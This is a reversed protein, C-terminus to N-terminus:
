IKVRKIDNLLEGFADINKVAYVYWGNVEEYDGLGDGDTDKSVPDLGMNKAQMDSLGDGDSDAVCPNSYVRKSQLHGHQDYWKM